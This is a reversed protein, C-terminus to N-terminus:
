FSSSSRASSEARSLSIWQSVRHSRHFMQSDLRFGAAEIRQAYVSRIGTARYKGVVKGTYNVGSRVFEFLDQMMVVDGEMGSIESIKM